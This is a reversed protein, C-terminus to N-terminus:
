ESRHLALVKFLYHLAESAGASTECSSNMCFLGLTGMLTGSTSFEEM